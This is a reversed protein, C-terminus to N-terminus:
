HFVGVSIAQTQNSNLHFTQLRKLEKIHVKHSFSIFPLCFANDILNSSLLVSRLLCIKSAYKFVIQYIYIYIYINYSIYQLTNYLIYQLIDYYIM